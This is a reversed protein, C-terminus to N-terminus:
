YRENVHNYIVLCSERGRKRERVRPVPVLSQTVQRVHRLPRLVTHGIRAETEVVLKDIHLVEITNSLTFGCWVEVLYVYLPICM